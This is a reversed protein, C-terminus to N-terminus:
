NSQVSHSCVDVWELCLPRDNETQFYDSVSCSVEILLSLDALSSVATNVETEYSCM